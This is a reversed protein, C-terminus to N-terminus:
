NLEEKLKKIEEKLKICSDKCLSKNLKNFKKIKEKKIENKIAEYVEPDITKLNNM